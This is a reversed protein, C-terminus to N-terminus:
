DGRLRFCRPLAIGEEGGFRWDEGTGLPLFPEMGLHGFHLPKKTSWWVSREGNNSIRHILQPHCGWKSFRITPTLLSIREMRFSVVLM